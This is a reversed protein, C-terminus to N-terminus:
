DPEPQVDMAYLRRELEEKTPVHKEELMKTLVERVLNFSALVDANDHKSGGHAASSRRDYLKAVEKARAHRRMGPAELYAAILASVRFRLETTSPSFLAELAAWLAMITLASRHVYQGINLADVALSFESSQSIFKLAVPWKEAVWLAAAKNFPEGSTALQFRREEAECPYLWADTNSTQASAEFPRNSLISLSAAPDVGLRLTFAIARAISDTSGLSATPVAPIFLEATIDHAIGGRTATWPGLHPKGSEAPVFAMMFNAFLHASVQRLKVSHGLDYAQDQLPLSAFGAFLDSGSTEM